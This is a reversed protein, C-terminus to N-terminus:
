DDTKADDPLPDRRIVKGQYGRHCYNYTDSLWNSTLDFAAEDCQDQDEGEVNWVVYNGKLTAPIGCSKYSFGDTDWFVRNIKIYVKLKM